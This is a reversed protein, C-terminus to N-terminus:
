HLPHFRMTNDRFAEFQQQPLTFPAAAQIARILSADLAANGSSEVIRITAVSGDPQLQLEVLPDQKYEVSAPVKWNRQVAAEIMAIYRDMEQQSLQKGAIDAMDPRSTKATEKVDTSSEVPAFPDFSEAPKTKAPSLKPEPKLEPKPLEPKTEAKPLTPRARELKALEKASIMMVEVRRLPEPAKRGQWYALGAIIGIVLLHLLLAFVIDARNLSAPDIYHNDATHSPSM